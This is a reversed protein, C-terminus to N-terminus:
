FSKFMGSGAGLCRVCTNGCREVRACKYTYDHHLWQNRMRDGKENKRFLGEDRPESM